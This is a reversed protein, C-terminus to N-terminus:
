GQFYYTGPPSTARDGFHRWMPNYFYARPEGNVIREGKLAVAKTAVAHLGDAGVVGGEFPNMNIDGVLVTRTHRVRQELTEIFTRIRPASLIQEREDQFLKSGLHAAVLLLEQGLPPRIRYGALGVRDMLPTVARRPLSTYLQLRHSVGFRPPAYRLGAAKTLVVRGEEQLVPSEALVVIDAQYERAARGVLDLIARGGINWFLFRLTEFIEPRTELSSIQNSVSRSCSFHLQKTDL